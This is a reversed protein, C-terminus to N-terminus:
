CALAEELTFKKEYLARGVIVGASGTAQLGRLDDLSSVGGSAQIQLSPFQKALQARFLAIDRDHDHGAM